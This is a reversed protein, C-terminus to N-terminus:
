ESAPTLPVLLRPYLVKLNKRKKGDGDIVELSWNRPKDIGKLEVELRYVRTMGTYLPALTSPIDERGQPSLLIRMGGGHDRVMQELLTPSDYRALRLGETTPSVRLAPEVWLAFVRIGSRALEISAHSRDHPWNLWSGTATILFLADAFSPPSFGAAATPLAERPSVDSEIRARARTETEELLALLRERDRSFELQQEAPGSATSDQAPTAVPVALIPLALLLSLCLRM